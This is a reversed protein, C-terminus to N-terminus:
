VSEEQSLKDNHDADADTFRAKLGGSGPSRPYLRALERWRLEEGNSYGLRQAFAAFELAADATSVAKHHDVTAVLWGAVEGPSLRSNGNLDVWWFWELTAQL